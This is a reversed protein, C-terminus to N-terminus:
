KGWQHGSDGIEFSKFIDAARSDYSNWTYKLALQRARNGMIEIAQPHHVFWVAKEKIAEVSQIPIVFGEKGDTIDDVGSNLLAGYSLELPTKGAIRMLMKNKGMRESSGAALLIGTVM